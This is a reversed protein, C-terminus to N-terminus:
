ASLPNYISLIKSLILYAIKSFCSSWPSVPYLSFFRASTLAPNPDPPRVLPAIPLYSHHCTSNPIPIRRM